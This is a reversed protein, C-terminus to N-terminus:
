HIRVLHRLLPRAAEIVQARDYTVFYEFRREFDPGGDGLDRAVFAGAFHPGVVVVDWEGGLRDDPELSAGRVGSGPRDPIGVGLAGVLAVEAALRQYRERVKSTFFSADQFTALVVSERQLAFAEEELQRSLALLLRKNGILTGDPRAIREFPTESHDEDPSRRPLSVQVAMREDEYRDPDGVAALEGPRGFHWGQGLKAGMAVARQWHGENEIGEALILAGSREAEARVAHIVRAVSSAPLLGQTLRRDLKIVDPAVFPMLGLSRPDIGVDDLAIRCNRERLWRVAALVESPRAALARETLEVVISVRAFDGDGNVDLIEGADLGAPEVNLFLLHEEDFGAALATTVACSRCARDFRELIGEAVAAAFLDEPMELESGVPGRALAEHGIRTGDRLDVIPQFVARLGGDEILARASAIPKTQVGMSIIEDPVLRLKLGRHRSRRIALAGEAGSRASRAIIRV